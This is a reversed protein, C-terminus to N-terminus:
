KAKFDSCDEGKGYPHRGCVMLTGGYYQGHLHRCGKCLAPQKATPCLLEQRLAELAEIREALLGARELRRYSAESRRRYRRTPVVLSYRIGDGAQARAESAEPHLLLTVAIGDPRQRLELLEGFIIAGGELSLSWRNTERLQDHRVTFKILVRDYHPQFSVLPFTLEACGDVQCYGSQRGDVEWHQVHRDVSKPASCPSSIDVTHRAAVPNMGYFAQIGRM